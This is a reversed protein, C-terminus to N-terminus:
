TLLDKTQLTPRQYRFVPGRTTPHTREHRMAALDLALYDLHRITVWSFVCGGPFGGHVRSERPSSTVFGIYSFCGEDGLSPSNIRGGGRTPQRVLGLHRNM